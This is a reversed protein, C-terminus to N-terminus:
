LWGKEIAELAHYSIMLSSGARKISTLAERVSKAEDLVGVSAAAKLMAYEGSVNYAVVPLNTSAKVKAIVDLYPLAPKVMLM